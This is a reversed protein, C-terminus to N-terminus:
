RIQEIFADVESESVSIANIKEMAAYDVRTEAGLRKRGDEALGRAAAATTMVSARRRAKASIDKDAKAFVSVKKMPPTQSVLLGSVWGKKGKISVKYWRGKKSLVTLETGKQATAVVKAKFSPSKMIKAKYSQVYLTQSGAAILVTVALITIIQKLFKSM